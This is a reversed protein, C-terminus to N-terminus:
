PLHFSSTEIVCQHASPTLTLTLVRTGAGCESLTDETIIEQQEPALKRRYVEAM